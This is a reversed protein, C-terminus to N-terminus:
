LAKRNKFMYVSPFLNMNFKKNKGIDWTKKALRSNKHGMHYCSQQQSKRVPNYSAIDVNFKINDREGRLKESEDKKRQQPKTYAVM